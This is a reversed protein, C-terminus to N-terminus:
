AIQCGQNFYQILSKNESLAEWAIGQQHMAVNIRNVLGQFKM